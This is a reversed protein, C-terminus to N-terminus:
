VNVNLHNETKLIMLTLITRINIEEKRSTLTQGEDEEENQLNRDYSYYVEEKSDM